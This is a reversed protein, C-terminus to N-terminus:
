TKWEIAIYTLRFGTDPLFRLGSALDRSGVTAMHVVERNRWALAAAGALEGADVFERLCTETPNKLKMDFM